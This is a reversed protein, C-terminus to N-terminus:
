CCPTRTLATHDRHAALVKDVDYLDHRLMAVATALPVGIFQAALGVIVLDASGLVFYSVWCLLLTVPLLLGAVAFWRVQTRLVADGDAGARRYRLVMSWACAMLLGLFVPLLALTAVNAWEPLTGLAHPADEYPSPYAAPATAALVVFLAVVVLLAAGVLRWRASLFRGDPFLLTLFALPLFLFMWTGQSLSVVADNVSLLDPHEQSVRWAIDLLTTAAIVFGISALVPGVANTRRRRAVVLGLVLSPAALVVATVLTEILLRVGDDLAAVVLSAVVLLVSVVVICTTWVVASRDTRQVFTM